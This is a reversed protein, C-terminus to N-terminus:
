GQPPPAVTCTNNNINRDRLVFNRGTTIDRVQVRCKRRPFDIEAHCFVAPDDNDDIIISLGPRYAVHNGIGAFIESTAAVQYEWYGYLPSTPPVSAVVQRFIDGSADDVCCSDFPITVNVNFQCSAGGGGVVIDRTIVLEYCFLTGVDGGLDDAINLTWNGAAPIGDFAALSTEPIFSGAFPATGSAISTGAEDDFVTPTGSCDNNGSGYNDGSSGNDSSVDITVANPGTLTIDLDADFTHNLRIRLDVDVVTGVDPINIVQPTMNGSSGSVPIPVALNGSSYTTTVTGRTAGPVDDEGTCTVVTTGVPFTSGSPPTCQVNICNAATPAFTVVAGNLDAATTTIDAPCTLTCGPGIVNCQCTVVTLSWNNLTGTDGGVDDDMTITWTGNPNEGIFAAFAEEPALTTAATGSVYPHDNVLGANTAYPVQGGPNADDDWTTGAFANVNSGANDSSFTVITGAPSQLTMDLDSPFTHTLNTFMNLDCLYTGAGAITITSTAVPGGSDPIAVPTMNAVTVPAANVPPAALTLISLSWNNLTGTDGGVDDDMTITWTGNPDEGIFAGFAEEPALTTAATGSVYPHDNVLGANTAYPVQGGPNADDDWTTGAFANVNSGANDSSFTVITGAPSQLTMDLDSPFTHTLNTFMNVDFIYTGAGAITITSTAVPGGSDPIAVPTMNSGSGTVGPTCNPPLAPGTGEPAAEAGSDPGVQAAQDGGLSASIANYETLAANLKGRLQTNNPETVLREKLRTITLGLENLRQYDTAKTSGQLALRATRAAATGDVPIMTGVALLLCCM